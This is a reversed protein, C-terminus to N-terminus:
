DHKYNYQSVFYFRSSEKYRGCSDNYGTKDGSDRLYKDTTEPHFSGMFHGHHKTHGEKIYVTDTIRQYVKATMAPKLSLHDRM